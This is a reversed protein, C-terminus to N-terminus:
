SQKLTIYSYLHEGRPLEGRARLAGRLLTSQVTPSCAVTQASRISDAVTPRFVGMENQGGVEFYDLM